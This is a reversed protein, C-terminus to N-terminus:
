IRIEEPLVESTVQVSAPLSRRPIRDPLAAIREWSAPVETDDAVWLLPVDGSGPRKFWSFFDAKWDDNLLVLPEYRLPVM